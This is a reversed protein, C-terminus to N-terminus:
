LRRLGEDLPTFALDPCASLLASPDFRHDVQAKTRPRSEIAPRKGTLREIADLAQLYTYSTGSVVNLVGECAGFLLRTAADVADDVFLFERLERGDGWLTISAGARTKQMFGGPGYYYGPESPGYVLPPRLVLLSTGAHQAAAKMLLREATFKGIGYYSTPQVPTAETITGHQVDEGYVAASSFFLVRAVPAMALARCVTSTIALNQWLVELTDGLQKKIAACIVVAADPDFLRALAEASAPGTLDLDTMSCGLLAVGPATRTLSAALRCGIYGTHGLVVIRSFRPVSM